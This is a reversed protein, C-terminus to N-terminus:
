ALAAARRKRQKGQAPIPEIRWTLDGIDLISFDTLNYATANVTTRLLETRGQLIIFRYSSVGPVAEWRFSIQGTSLVAENVVYGAAPALLRPAALAQPQATQTQTPTVTQPAIQAATEQVPTEAITEQAEIVPAATPAVAVPQPSGAMIVLTQSQSVASNNGENDTQYVGWYYSGQTLGASAIDLVFFNDRVKQNIIQNSLDENRSLLFTYSVADEQREWTFYNATDEALYIIEQRVSPIPAALEALQEVNFRATSSSVAEGTIGQPYVPTIRWYYTGPQFGTRVISVISGGTGQVQTNFVPNTMAANASVEIIYALAGESAAWQFRIGPRETRFSFVEEQQPSVLNPPAANVMQFQGSVSGQKIDKDVETAPYARWFYVGNALNVTISNGSSRRTEIMTTFSRDAAIDIIVEADFGTKAFSFHVPLPNDSRNLFMARQKPSTVSVRATGIIGGASLQRSVTPSQVDASGEIVALDLGQSTIGAELVSGKHASVLTGGADISLTNSRADVTLFGEELQIAGGLRNMRLYLLTKEHLEIVAGSFLTVVAQSGDSTRLADGDYVPSQQKLRDWLVRDVLRRQAAHYKYTITGVPEANLSFLSKNLDQWFLYVAVAAGLLCLPIFILDALLSTGKVKM